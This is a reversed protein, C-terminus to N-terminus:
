VMFFRPDLQAEGAELDADYEEKLKKDRPASGEKCYASRRVRSRVEPALKDSWVEYGERAQPSCSSM